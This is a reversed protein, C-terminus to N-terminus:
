AALFAAVRRGRCWLEAPLPGKRLRATQLASEDDTAHIEIADRIRDGRMLYLRYYVQVGWGKTRAVSCAEDPRAVGTADAEPSSHLCRSPRANQCQFEM